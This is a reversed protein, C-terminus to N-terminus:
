FSLEVGIRIRRPVSYNSPNNAKVSYLDLYSPVYTQSNINTQYIPSTLYGDDSASGTYRYVRLVNKTNLLNLVQVYVNLNSTKRNEDDGKGFHIEMDRDIRLDM